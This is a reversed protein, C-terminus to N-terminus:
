VLGNFMKCMQPVLKNLDSYKIEEQISELTENSDWPDRDNRTSVKLVLVAFTSADALIYFGFHIKECNKAPNYFIIQRGFDLPSAASVDDLSLEYDPIMFAGMMKKLINLLPHTKHLTDNGPMETVNLNFLQVSRLQKFRRLQM